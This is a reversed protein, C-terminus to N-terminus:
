LIIKFICANKSKQIFKKLFAIKKLYRSSKKLYREIKYISIDPRGRYGGISDIDYTKEWRVEYKEGEFFVEHKQITITKIM